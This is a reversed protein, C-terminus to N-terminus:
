APRAHRSVRVVLTSCPAHKVVSEAVNGLTVRALGTRGVTGVVVLEAPLDHAARVIADVVPAEVVMVDADLHRAKLFERLKSESERLAATTELEPMSDPEDTMTDTPLAFGSDIAHLVALRTGRRRAEEAGALVAPQARDSFDTAALVQGVPNGSRAVLVPCHAYRAVRAATSGLLIRELANLGSAGVVILDIAREESQRVIAAYPAGEDLVLEVERSTRETVREIQELVAAGAKERLEQLRDLDLVHAQPFMPDLPLVTPLVHCVVLLADYSKAWADAQKLAEDALPSLDTAVLIRQPRM